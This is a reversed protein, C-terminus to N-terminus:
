EIRDPPWRLKRRTILALVAGVIVLALTLWWLGSAHFIWAAVLAIATFVLGPITASRFSRDVIDKSAQTRIGSSM